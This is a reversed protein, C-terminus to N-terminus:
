NPANLAFRGHRRYFTLWGEALTALPTPAIGFAKFGKAKPAAVNDKQLM